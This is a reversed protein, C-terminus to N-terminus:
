YPNCFTSFSSLLPTNRYPKSFLSFSLPTPLPSSLIILLYSHWFVLNLSLTLWLLVLMVALCLKVGIWWDSALLSSIPMLLQCYQTLSLLLFLGSFLIGQVIPEWEFVTPQIIFISLGDANRPKAPFPCMCNTHFFSLNLASFLFIFAYIDKLLKSLQIIRYCLTCLNWSFVYLLIPLFVLHHLKLHYQTM